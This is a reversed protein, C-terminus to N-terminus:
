SHISTQSGARSEICMSVSADPGDKRATRPEGSDSRDFGKYVIQGLGSGDIYHPRYSAVFGFLAM